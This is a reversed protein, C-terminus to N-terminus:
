WFQFDKVGATKCFSYIGAPLGAYGTSIIDDFSIFTERSNLRESVQCSGVSGDAYCAVSETRM